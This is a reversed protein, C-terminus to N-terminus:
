YFLIAHARVAGQSMSVNFVPSFVRWGVVLPRPRDMAEFM